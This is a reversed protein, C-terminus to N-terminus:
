RAKTKMAYYIGSLTLAVLGLAALDAIWPGFRTFFRGSHMDLIVRYLSLGEGRYAQYAAELDAPAPASAHSWPTAGGKFRSFELFDSM